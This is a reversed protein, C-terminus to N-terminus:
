AVLGVAEGQAKLVPAFDTGKMYFIGGRGFSRGWSNIFEFRDTQYYYGICVYAHGGVVSGTARVNYSRDPRFMGKYWNSGIWAPGYQLVYAALRVMPDTTGDPTDLWVYNKIVGLDKLAQSAAHVSTGDHPTGAWPDRAQAERYIVYTPPTSIIPKSLPQSDLMQKGSYAVCRPTQGQDLTPGPEWWRGIRDTGFVGGLPKALFSPLQNLWSRGYLGQKGLKEVVRDLNMDLDLVKEALYEYNRPDPPSPIRGFGVGFEELELKTPYVVNDSM